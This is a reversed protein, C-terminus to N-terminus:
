FQALVTYLYEEIIVFSNIYPVVQKYAEFGEESIAIDLNYRAFLMLLALNIALDCSDLACYNGCYGFLLDLPFAELVCM